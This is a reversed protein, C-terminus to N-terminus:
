ASLLIFEPVLGSIGPVFCRFLKGRPIKKNAAM